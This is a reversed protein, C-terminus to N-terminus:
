QLVMCCAHSPIGSSDLPMGASLVFNRGAEVHCPSRAMSLQTSSYLCAALMSLLARCFTFASLISAMNKRSVQIRSLGQLQEDEAEAVGPGEAQM